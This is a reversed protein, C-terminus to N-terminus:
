ADERQLWGAVLVQELERGMHIRATDRDGCGVSAKAQSWVPRIIHALDGQNEVDDVVDM